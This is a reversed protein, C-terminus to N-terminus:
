KVIKKLDNNFNEIEAILSNLQTYVEDIDKDEIPKLRFLRQFLTLDSNFGINNNILKRM